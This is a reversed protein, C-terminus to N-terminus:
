RHAHERHVTRGIQMADPMHLQSEPWMVGWYTIRQQHQTESLYVQAFYLM